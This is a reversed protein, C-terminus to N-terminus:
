PFNIVKKQPTILKIILEYIYMLLCIQNNFCNWLYHDKLLLKETHNM